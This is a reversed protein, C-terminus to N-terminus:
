SWQVPCLEVLSRPPRRLPRNPLNGGSRCGNEGGLRGAGIVSPCRSKGPCVVVARLYQSDLAWGYNCAARAGATGRGVHRLGM